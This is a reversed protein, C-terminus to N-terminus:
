GHNSFFAEVLDLAESFYVGSSVMEAVAVYEDYTVRDPLLGMMELMYERRGVAGVPAIASIVQVCHGRWNSIEVSWAVVRYPM